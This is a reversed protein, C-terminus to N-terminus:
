YKMFFFLTFLNWCLRCWPRLFPLRLAPAIDRRPTSELHAYLWRIFRRSLGCFHCTTAFLLGIGDVKFALERRSPQFGHIQDNSPFFLRTMSITLVIVGAGISWGERLNPRKYSLMVLVAAIASVLVALLPKISILPEM